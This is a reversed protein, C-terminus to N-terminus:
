AGALQRLKNLRLAMLPTDKHKDKLHRCLLTVVDSLDALSTASEIQLQAKVRATFGLDTALSTALGVVARYRQADTLPVEQPRQPAAVDRAQLLGLECLRELAGDMTDAPVMAALDERHRQGDCLILVQRQAPSLGATRAQLEHKGAETKLYLM